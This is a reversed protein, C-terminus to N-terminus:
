IKVFSKKRYMWYLILWIVAFGAVGRLLENWPGVWEWKSMGRVFVDGINRFDYLETAMYAAIANMGIVIFPFAWRRWGWVDIILYFLGLLVLCMGGSYLVFSSTWIHKIIPFWHGWAWGAAWCAIGGALLGAAKSGPSVRSRLFQGAFAGLMVTCAFTMSGLIWAYTTRDQYQGLIRHDLWIALNGKETLVGPGHGPVPVWTLLAWFGLLLGATVVVQWKVNLHLLLISSILYGAAIAQLTNSYLRLRALDYALLNGQAMMGLVWLILVRLIIHLYLRRTGDGAALRKAFSFPMAAGVIFLFLPMILDIFRFGQWDVHRTQMEVAHWGEGGFGHALGRVLWIGGILWFMDFGRLADLSALRRGGSTDPRSSDM